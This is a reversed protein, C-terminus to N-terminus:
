AKNYNLAPFSYASLPSRPSEVYQFRIRPEECVVFETETYQVITYLVSCIIKFQVNGVEVCYHNGRFRLLSCQVCSM